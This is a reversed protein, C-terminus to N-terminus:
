FLQQAAESTSKRSILLLKALAAAIEGLDQLDGKGGCARQCAKPMQYLFFMLLDM